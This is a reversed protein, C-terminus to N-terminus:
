LADFEALLAVKRVDYHAKVSTLIAEVDAIGANSYPAHGVIAESEEHIGELSLISNLQIIAEGSQITARNLEINVLIHNVAELANDVIQIEHVIKKATKFTEKLM